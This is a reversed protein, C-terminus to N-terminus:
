IPDAATVMVKGIRSNKTRLVLSYHWTQQQGATTWAVKARASDILMPRSVLKESPPWGSLM